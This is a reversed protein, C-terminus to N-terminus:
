IKGKIKRTLLLMVLLLVVVGLVGAAITSAAPSVIGPVRYDPIIGPMATTVARYDFGLTAAVRELGDPWQSAFPSIFLVMGLSIVVGFVIFTGTQRTQQTDTSQHLLEPRAKELATVVLATILAEGLGILSHIGAMAPFATQWPVTGSWALEGACCLSAAVVSCWSAIAVAPIRGLRMGLLRLLIRYITYGIGAGVIAMNFVNAGLALVGGDAFLFCQVVLVTAIVIMAAGPGLLVATLVAGMLHGSTGGAVPFNLMQAAFVFAAALGLLPIQRQPLQLKTQRWAAGIGIVSLSATAVITKTDLFGDPLHM